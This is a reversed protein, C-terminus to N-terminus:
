CPLERNEDDIEQNLKSDTSQNKYTWGFHPRIQNWKTFIVCSM